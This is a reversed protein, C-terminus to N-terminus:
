TFVWNQPATQVVGGTIVVVPLNGSTAKKPAVATLSTSSVFTTPYNIGNINLVSQRTFGVGTATCTATGGGSAGGASVSTLTPNTAPSLSSAHSANPGAAISAATLAPGVGTSLGQWTGTAGAIAGGAGTYPLCTNPNYDLAGSGAIKQYLIEQGAAEHAVSTSAPVAGLFNGPPSGTGPYTNETGGSTAGTGSALAATPAMFAPLTTAAGGFAPGMGAVGGAADDFFPPPNTNLPLNRNSGSVDQGVGVWNLYSLKTYNPANPPTAGTCAMNTPPTPNPTTVTLASQSM